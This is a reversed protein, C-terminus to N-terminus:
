GISGWPRMVKRGRYPIGIVTSRRRYHKGVPGDATTGSFRLLLLSRALRCRLFCHPEALEALESYARMFGACFSRSIAIAEVPNEMVSAGLSDIIPM